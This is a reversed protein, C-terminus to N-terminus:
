FALSLLGPGSHRCYLYIALAGVALCWPVFVRFRDKKLIFSLLILSLFGVVAATVFGAALAEAPFISRSSDKLSLLVAGTVAPVSLLFSFRLALSREMGLLIAISITVGSRSLGPSIALGQAFGVVLALWLPFELESKVTAEKRFGALFLFLATLCLNVGVALLSSFLSTFFDKFLLGIVATPLSGALILAGLRFLPRTRYALRLRQFSFLTKLEKIIGLCETRYFVLVASLTGLHLVLDFFVEPETLGFLNQCLVLHGSSSVPLFETLGQLIGLILAHDLPTV